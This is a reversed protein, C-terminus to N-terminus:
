CRVGIFMKHLLYIKNEFLWQELPYDDFTNRLLTMPNHAHANVFGPMLINNNGEIIKDASCEFNGIRSIIDNEVLVNAKFLTSKEVDLVRVNKFLIKM